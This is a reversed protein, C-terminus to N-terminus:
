GDELYQTRKFFSFPKILLSVLNLMLNERNKIKRFSVYNRDSKEWHRRTFTNKQFDWFPSLIKFIFLSHGKFQIAKLFCLIKIENMSYLFFFKLFNDYKKRVYCQWTRYSMTVDYNDIMEIQQLQIIARKLISGNGFKMFLNKNESTKCIRSIFHVM